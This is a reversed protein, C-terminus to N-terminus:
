MITRKLTRASVSGNRLGFSALIDGWIGVQSQLSTHIELCEPLHHRLVGLSKQSSVAQPVLNQLFSPIKLFRHLVQADRDLEIGHM